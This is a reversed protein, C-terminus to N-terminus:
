YHKSLHRSIKAWHYLPSVHSRFGKNDKFIKTLKKKKQVNIKM